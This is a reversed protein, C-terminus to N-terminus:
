NLKSKNLIDEYCDQCLNVFIENINCIMVENTLSLIWCLECINFERQGEENEKM